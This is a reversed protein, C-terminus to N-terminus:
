SLADESNYHRHCTESVFSIFSHLPLPQRHSHYFSLTREVREIPDMSCSKTPAKNILAVFDDVSLTAWSRLPQSDSISVFFSSGDDISLGQLACTADLYSRISSIKTSFFEIFIGPLSSTPHKTPLPCESTVGMIGGILLFLKRSDQGCDAVKRKFFVAKTSM